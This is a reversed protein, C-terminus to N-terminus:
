VCVKMRRRVVKSLLPQVDDFIQARRQRTKGANFREACVRDLEKGTFEGELGIMLRTVGRYKEKIPLRELEDAVITLMEKQLFATEPSLSSADEKVEYLNGDDGLPADLSVNTSKKDNQIVFLVSSEKSGIMAAVDAADADTLPRGYLKEIKRVRNKITLGAVIWMKAFIPFPVKKSPEFKQCATMLGLRGEQVLDDFQGPCFPLKKNAAGYIMKEFQQITANVDSLNYQCEVYKQKM